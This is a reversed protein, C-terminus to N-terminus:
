GNRDSFKQLGFVINKTEMECLRPFNVHGFRNHWLNIDSEVKQVKAFMATGVDNTELIFMRRERRVQVNIQSEEKIFCGLHTFRVQMGQDVIQRVLVLNKTITSVHLM